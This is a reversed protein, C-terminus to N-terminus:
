AGFIQEALSKQRKQRTMEVLGLATMDVLTTKVPDKKLEAGLYEMLEERAEKAEMDIFDAIIIGSLNRLRLQRAIEAAAERNIKRFTDQQKKHGQFKGTNVDIVTLAETPQIVLYGGSKLWVRERLAEELARSLGYVSSLSPAAQEYLVLKERDEPQHEQLYSNLEEYLKADDTLIRLLRDKPLSRLRAAYSPPERYVLSFCTQHKGTEVTRQCLASLRSLEEQLEAADTGAANTRIIIGFNESLFPEALQRLRLREAQGLKASIGLGKKGTTLVLYKGAFNLNCTVTPAKTKVAERSVQVLIEDGAALKGSKKPSTYLPEEQETLPYYCLIGDAIEVFAANINALINKVKGVYINGLLSGAGPPSCSLEAARGNEYFASVIWEKGNLPLKTVLFTGQEEM